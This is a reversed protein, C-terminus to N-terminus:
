TNLGPLQQLPNLRFRAQARNDMAQQHVRLTHPGQPDQAKQAFNYADISDRPHTRLRDHTEYFYRKDSPM